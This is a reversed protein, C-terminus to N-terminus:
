TDRSSTSRTSYPPRALWCRVTSTLLGGVVLAYMGKRKVAEMLLVSWYYEGLVEIPNSRVPVALECRLSYILLLHFGRFEKGILLFHQAVRAVQFIGGVIGGVGHIGEPIYLITIIRSAAADATNGTHDDNGIWM